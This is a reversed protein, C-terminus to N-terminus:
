IDKTEETSDDQVGDSKLKEMAAQRDIDRQQASIMSQITDIIIKENAKLQAIEGQLMTFQRTKKDIDARFKNVLTVILGAEEESIVNGSQAKALARRLKNRREQDEYM